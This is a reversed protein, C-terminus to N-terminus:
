AAKGASSARRRTLSEFPVVRGFMSTPEIHGFGFEANQRALAQAAANGALLDEFSLDSSPPVMAIRMVGTAAGCDTTTSPTGGTEAGFGITSTARNSAETFNKGKADLVNNEFTVPGGCFLDM